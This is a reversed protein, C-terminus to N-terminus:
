NTPRPQGASQMSRLLRLVSEGAGDCSTGCPASAALISASRDGTFPSLGPRLKAEIRSVTPRGSVTYRYVILRRRNDRRTLTARRWEGLESDTLRDEEALTWGDGEIRNDYGIVERGQSQTKYFAHFLTVRTAEGEYSVLFQADPPSSSPKWDGDAALPGKWGQEAQQPM